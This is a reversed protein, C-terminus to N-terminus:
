VEMELIECMSSGDSGIVRVPINLQQSLQELTMDDLFKDREHRLMCDPIILASGLDTGKLQQVIDTGTVLGAVTIKGGFFNNKIAKLNVKLNPDREMLKQMLDNIFPYAAEGTVATFSRKTGLPEMLPLFAEFEKYLFSILGVGNDLQDFEGYYTYDPLKRKALIFFEDSPYCIRKKDKKLFKEQFEHIIDITEGATTENYTEMPFLGDRYATVGVPVCAISQVAPYLKELDSLTRRLEDNDNIKPCLVIQANIKNGAEAIKYLKQLAEGAFRNHMMRCRLQPNTTHVSVNIPSIKMKIIREVDHSSLNTLTVYNGFLFSLRDDDDKFYISERMGKPNQDIFCFICNNCCRRKEDMLYSKFELGLDKYQPKRIKVSYPIGERLLEVSLEIDSAYFQYDLVDNIENKGISVITDNKQIGAKEAYSNKEVATILVAM